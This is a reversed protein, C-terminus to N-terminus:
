SNLDNRDATAIYLVSEGLNTAHDAIREIYRGVFALYMGQNIMQPNSGMLEFLDRVVRNYLHDVEDDLSALERARVIDERIYSELGQRTMRVTLDAMKPIDVLPKMLPGDIRQVVKAIDVALDSMRELDTSIKMAAIIKRLDKAVPQQTAILRVCEDDVKRELENVIKDEQIWYAAKERDLSRLCDMSGIFIREVEQGMKNLLKVIAHQKEDLPHRM